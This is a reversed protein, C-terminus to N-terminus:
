AGREAPLMLRFTCGHGLQCEVTLRGGMREALTRAFALGMGLGGDVCGDVRLELTLAM